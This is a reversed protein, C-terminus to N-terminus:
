GISTVSDPITVSTLSSCSYFAGERIITVSDPITLETLSSCSYFAGDGISTVSDPITVSMLSNCSDFANDGISTVSDPITVSMLSSCGYFAYMGISTVGSDIVVSKIISRNRYWPVSSFFKWVTMGGSGSITLTGEDDLAWTLNEGCTGSATEAFVPMPVTLVINFVMCLILVTCLFKKM